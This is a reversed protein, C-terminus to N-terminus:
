FLLTLLCFMCNSQIPPFFSVLSHPPSTKTGHTSWKVVRRESISGNNYAGFMTAQSHLKAKDAGSPSVHFTAQHNPLSSPISNSPVIPTKRHPAAAPSMQPSSLKFNSHIPTSTRREMTDLSTSLDGDASYAHHHQQDPGNHFAVSSGYPSENALNVDKEERGTPTFHFVDQISQRFCQFNYDILGQKNFNDERLICVLALYHNVERLYLVTGSNLRISASTGKYRNEINEDYSPTSFLTM